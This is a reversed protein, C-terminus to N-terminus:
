EPRPTRPVKPPSGPGKGRKPELIYPPNKGGHPRGDRRFRKVPNGSKNFETYNKVRGQGDRKPVSHPGVAGPVPGVKNVKTNIPAPPAQPQATQPLTQTQPPVAPSTPAPNLKSQLYDWAIVLGGGIAGGVAAGVAAGGTAGGYGGGIGGSITGLGSAVLTGGAAGGAAGATGGVFGGIVAGAVAGAATGAAVRESDCCPDPDPIPEHGDPDIYRLPNNYAYQYKNLSQPNTLDAYFTPNVSANEAFYYLEIPGGSFEDPSAFRGQGSAYYRVQAYDLGTEDDREYGAFNQRV